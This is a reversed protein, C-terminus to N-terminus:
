MEPPWPRANEHEFLGQVWDPLALAAPDQGLAAIVEATPVLKRKHIVATRLSAHNACAGDETWLSQEIYIFKEDCGMLRTRMEVKMMHTLRKRYRVVSGAVTLGWQHEKMVRNMGSRLAFPIRGLDYLTLTRGNNLERWPDLDWLWVRHHSVHTEGAALPPANRFKILEKAFRVIPYM